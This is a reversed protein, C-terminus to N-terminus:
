TATTNDKLERYGLALRKLFREQFTPDSKNITQVIITALYRSVENQETFSQLKKDAM